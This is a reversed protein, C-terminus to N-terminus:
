YCHGSGTRAVRSCRAYAGAVVRERSVTEDDAFEKTVTSEVPRSIVAIMTVTRYDVSHPKTVPGTRTAVLYLLSSSNHGSM